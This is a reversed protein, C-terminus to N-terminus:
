KWWEKREVCTWDNNPVESGHQHTWACITAQLLDGNPTEVSTENLTYGAGIEMELMSITQDNLKIEYCEGVAKDAISGSWVLVPYQKHTDPYYLKAGKIFVEGLDQVISDEIWNHLAEGKRLTGYAVFLITDPLVPAKPENNITM